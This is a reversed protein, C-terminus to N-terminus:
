PVPAVDVLRAWRWAVPHHAGPIAQATLHIPPPQEVLHHRRGTAGTATATSHAFATVTTRALRARLPRARM